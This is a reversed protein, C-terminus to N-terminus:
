IGKVAIEAQADTLGLKKFSEKLEKRTVEPDPKGGGMDKVKGTERIASVYDSEVKIAETLGEATEANMFKEAIRKKAADPLEAKSVAEDIVLKAEAIRKAKEAESIKAKLEDREATLATITAELEKVNEELEMKRKVETSIETRVVSEIQKVLDPRRERLADLGVLDIDQEPASSEYLNVGGGAGAETVFDVSRARTIKEVYLTKVGEIEAKTATGIANISVGMESLLGKDRLTALKGQMWPEVIVAEGILVGGDGPRVNKLTAVWDKVSREPRQKEDEQTPHDAYMKVGDFVRYDRALMEAPYYRDKGANFGPKIITILAQGKSGVNAETLPIYDSVLIRSTTENVWKPIEDDDVGIDRYAERIKRKVSPLSAAPIDAKQGRFGGPSLAAAAIGLQKRTIKGDPSEALRLRWGSPEAIDPVYAYAGAPYYNGDDFKMTPQEKLWAIVSTAEQLDTEKLEGLSILKQIRDDDTKGRRAAERILSAIISSEKVVWKDGKKEYKANVAAYATANAKGEDGDYQKLASNYAAVWIEIAPEPMDKIKEPPNEKTYPM